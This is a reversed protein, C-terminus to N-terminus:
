NAYGPGFKWPRVMKVLFIPGPLDNKWQFNRDPPGFNEPGFNRHCIQTRAHITHITWPALTGHCSCVGRNGANSHGYLALGVTTKNGSMVYAVPRSNPERDRPTQTPPELSM